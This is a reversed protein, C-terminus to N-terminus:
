FFQPYVKSMSKKCSKSMDTPFFRLFVNKSIHFVYFVDYEPVSGIHVIETWLKELRSINYEPSSRAEGDGEKGATETRVDTM